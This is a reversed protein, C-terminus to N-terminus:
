NKTRPKLVEQVEQTVKEQFYFELAEAVIQSYGRQGRKAALTRLLVQHERPLTITTRVSKKRM